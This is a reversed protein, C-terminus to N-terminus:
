MALRENHCTPMTQTLPIGIFWCVMGNICGVIYAEVKVTKLASKQRGMDLSIINCILWAANALPILLYPLWSYHATGEEM